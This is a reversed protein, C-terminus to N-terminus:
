RNHGVKNLQGTNNSFTVCPLMEPEPSLFIFLLLNEQWTPTDIIINPYLVKESSKQADCMGQNQIYCSTIIDIELCGSAFIFITRSALFCFLLITLGLDWLFIDDIGVDV